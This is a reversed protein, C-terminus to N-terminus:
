HTGGTKHQKNHEISEEVSKLIDCQLYFGYGSTNGIKKMERSVLNFVYWKSRSPWDYVDRLLVEDEWPSLDEVYFPAPSKAPRPIEIKETERFREGDKNFIFANLPADDGKKEYGFVYVRNDKFFVRLLGGPLANVKALLLDPNEVSFLELVHSTANEGLFYEGGPTAWFMGFPPDRIVGNQFHVKNDKSRWAVAEHNDNFWSRAGPVNIEKVSGDCSLVFAKGKKWDCIRIATGDSNRWFVDPWDLRRIDSYGLKKLLRSMEKPELGYFKRVPESSQSKMAYLGELPFPGMALFLVLFSVLVIM